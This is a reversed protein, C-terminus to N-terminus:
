TNLKKNSHMKIIKNDKSM